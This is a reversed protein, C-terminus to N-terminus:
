RGWARFAYQWGVVLEWDRELQPGDLHQWLPTLVELALRQGHLTDSAVEFNVGVGVDLRGGGRLDPDATPVMMPVLAADAGHIDGWATGELRASASVWGNFRRAVWGTGLGRHGLRYGRDNEGVRLTALGQAGWSWRDTQGLLTVGPTVDWTGSGLQMPYPLVAASPASAPTVDTEDIAGTPVSLGLNVHMAQGDRNFLRLLAALKIDGVGAASTAFQGGARTRHDMARDIIPLMGMLTLRESPAVMAGVMHMSMQMRLPAVPFRALVSAAPLEDTGDRNGTMRMPMFRYSVMVEGREHTHDGMVGLPAHGDPRASSWEQASVPIGTGLLLPMLWAILPSRGAAAMLDEEVLL